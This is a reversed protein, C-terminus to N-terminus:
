PCRVLDLGASRMESVRTRVCHVQPLGQDLPAQLVRVVGISAFWNPYSLSNAELLPCSIKERSGSFFTGVSALLHRDVREPPGFAEFGITWWRGEAVRLETLEVNCGEDPRAEKLVEKPATDPKIEYKLLWRKKEVDIWRSGKRMTQLVDVNLEVSWKVWADARGLIGPHPEVTRPASRPAKIEFNFHDKGPVERLKVGVGLSGFFILYSDTRSKEVREESADFWDLVAEPAPGVFFWRMEASHLMM